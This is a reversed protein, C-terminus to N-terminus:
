THQPVKSQRMLIAKDPKVGAALFDLIVDIIMTKYESPTHSTTIGHYDVCAFIALEADDQLKVWQKLAGLYNGLHLKGSPRMGSFIRNSMPKNYGFDKM